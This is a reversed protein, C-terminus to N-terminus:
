DRSTNIKYIFYRDCYSYRGLGPVFAEAALVIESYLSTAVPSAANGDMRREIMTMTMTNALPHRVRAAAPRLRHTRQAAAGRAAGGRAVAAADGGRV